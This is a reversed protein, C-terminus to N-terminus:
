LYPQIMNIPDSACSKIIRNLFIRYHLLGAISCRSPMNLCLTCCDMKEIAKGVVRIFFSLIELDRENMDWGCYALNMKSSIDIIIAFMTNQNTKSNLWLIPISIIAPIIYSICVLSFFRATKIKM